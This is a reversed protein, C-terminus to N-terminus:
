YGLSLYRDLCDFQESLIYQYPKCSVGHNERYDIFSMSLLPNRRITEVQDDNLPYMYAPYGKYSYESIARLIVALSDHFWLNIQRPILDRAESNKGYIVEMDYTIPVKTNDKYSVLIRFFYFNEFVGDHAGVPIQEFKTFLASLSNPGNLPQGSVSCQANSTLSIATLCLAAALTQLKSKM